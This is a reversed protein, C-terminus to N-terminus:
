RGAALAALAKPAGPVLAVLVVLRVTPVPDLLRVMWVPLAKTTPWNTTTALVDDGDVFQICPWIVAWLLAVPASVTCTPSTEPAPGSELQVIASDPGTGCDMAHAKTAPLGAKKPSAVAAHDEGARTTFVQYWFVVPRASATWM